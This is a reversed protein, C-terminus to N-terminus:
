GPRTEMARALWHPTKRARHTTQGGEFTAVHRYPRSLDDNDYVLVRALCRIAIALNAMTRPFRSALKEPDVDHGGQTVRMSVRQDSVEASSIGIFCLVVNYGAAAADELFRVKAGAPDSFVTEFVFSERSTVLARRAADAVDAASYPDMGSRLAIEDANVFRLGGRALFSDFFTTKGAGNPGAIAVLIPREDLWAHNV